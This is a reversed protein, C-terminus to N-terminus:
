SGVVRQIFADVANVVEAEVEEETRGSRRIVQLAHDADEIVHLRTPAGIRRLVEQLRDLKCTADRTGQVFLMPCIVRFLFGARQQAPKGSPHLPYSLLVLADAKLGQAVVQSAVRGGLGVGALVLHAPAEQPDRLLRQLAGRYAKELVPPADPRKKRAEAYPFNFRVVLHGRAALEAHLSKLLSQEMSGSTDHALVVGIRRGTPWWQPTGVVGSVTGETGVPIEVTEFRATTEM